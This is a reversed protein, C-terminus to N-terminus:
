DSLCVRNKGLKKAKYLAQDTRKAVAEYSEGAQWLTVGASFTILIRENDHLFFCRTLERQLRVLIQCADDASTQPLLLAFEEGGYRCVIDSPRLTDRIMRVLHQLARDGALHGLNDNLHKFNDIDLLAVALPYRHRQARATERAYAEEFGRRNLTGTLQDERVKASVTALEAELARVRQDAAAARARAAILEVRSAETVDRMRRTDALVDDLLAGLEAADGIHELRQTYNEIRSQYEGTDDALMGLRNILTEVMSKLSNRAEVLSTRLSGQRGLMERICSEAEQLAQLSDSTSLLVRIADLQGRIWSDDIVLEALNDVLLRLLRLLGAHMEGACEGRIELRKIFQQLSEALASDGDDTATRVRGALVHAEDRLEDYFGLRSVTELLQALLDRLPPAAANQRASASSAHRLAHESFDILARSSADWTKDEVAAALAAAIQRLEDVPHTRLREILGALLFHDGAEEQEAGNNRAIEFYTSRYNDPTPAM